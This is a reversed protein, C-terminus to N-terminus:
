QISKVSDVILEADMKEELAQVLPDNQMARVAAAQKECRERDARQAPTEAEAPGTNFVLKVHRGCYDDIAKQLREEALSGILGECVPDLHLKM